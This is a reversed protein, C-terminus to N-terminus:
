GDGYIGATARLETRMRERLEPPSLVECYAGYAKLERLLWFASATLRTVILDDGVSEKSIDEPTLEFEKALAGTLKFRVEIQDLGDRWGGGSAVVSLGLARDLRLFRNHTLGALESSSETEECWIELYSRRERFSVRAFRVTFQYETGRASRYYLYFPQKAAIKEDIAQRRSDDSKGLRQLLQTRLPVALGGHAVLLETLVRAPETQGTDILANAALVLAQVDPAGLKLGTGLAVSGEALAAVLASANPRDGWRFGLREALEDLQQKTGPPVSLTLAEKLRAM